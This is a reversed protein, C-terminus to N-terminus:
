KMKYHSSGEQYIVDLTLTLMSLSHALKREIFLEVKLEKKRLKM